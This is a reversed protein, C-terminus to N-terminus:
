PVYHHRPFVPAFVSRWPGPSAQVAPQLRLLTVWPRLFSRAYVNFGKKIDFPGFRKTQAKKFSFLTVKSNFHPNSRILNKKQNLLLGWPWRRKRSCGTGIWGAVNCIDAGDSAFGFAVFLVMSDGSQKRTTHKAIM